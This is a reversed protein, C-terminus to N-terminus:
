VCVCLQRADICLVAFLVMDFRKPVLLVFPLFPASLPSVLLIVLTGELTKSSATFDPAIRSFHGLSSKEMKRISKSLSAYLM